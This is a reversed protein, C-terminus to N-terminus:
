GLMFPFLQESRLTDEDMTKEAMRLAYLCGMFVWELHVFLSNVLFPLSTAGQRHKCLVTCM